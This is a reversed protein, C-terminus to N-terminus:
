SLYLAACALLTLVPGSIIKLMSWRGLHALLAQEEKDAIVLLGDPSARGLVAPISALPPPEAAPPPAAPTPAAPAPAPEAAPEAQIAELEKQFARLGADWEEADVQKDGNKDLARMRRSDAKLRRAIEALSLRVKEPMRPSIKERLTFPSQAPVAYGLVYATEQERIISAKISVPRAGSGPLRAVFRSVPDNADTSFLSPTVTLDIDTELYTQAKSASILVRGTDDELFFPIHDTGNEFITVWRKQKGSGRQEKAVVRFYVCPLEYVPDKLTVMPLARGCVEVLGMALSRIKSTSMEEILRRLRLERLGRYFQYVGFGILAACYVALEGDDGM